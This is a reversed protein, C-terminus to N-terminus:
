LRKFIEHFASHFQMIDVHLIIDFDPRINMRRHFVRHLIHFVGTFLRTKPGKMDPIGPPKRVRKHILLM